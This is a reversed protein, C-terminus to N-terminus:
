HTVPDWVGASSSSVVRHRVRVSRTLISSAANAPVASSVQAQRGRLCSGMESGSQCTRAGFPTGSVAPTTFGIASGSLVHSPPAPPPATFTCSTVDAPPTRLLRDLQVASPPGTWPRVPGSPGLPPRSAAHPGAPSGRICVPKISLRPDAACACERALLESKNILLM